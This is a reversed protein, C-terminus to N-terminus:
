YHFSPDTSKKDEPLHIRFSRRNEPVVPLLKELLYRKKSTEVGRPIKCIEGSSAALDFNTKLVKARIEPQDFATQYVFHESGKSFAFSVM